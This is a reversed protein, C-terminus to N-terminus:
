LLHAHIGVQEKVVEILKECFKETSTITVAIRHNNENKITRYVSGDGDFYGRVFHSYLKPDINPFDLSLSKNPTMGINKLSECMHKNFMLLRYQNKYTYGHDHKNSYDLYELPKESGITLRIKELIDRDEEQLSMAITCKDICNSGDAYLFGLIYAKDTTDICDFYAEDIAYKRIGNRIRKIDNEELVRLIPKHNCGFKEGIKVSSM